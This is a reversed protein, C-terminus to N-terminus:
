CWKLDFRLWMAVQMNGRVKRFSEYLGGTALEHCPTENLAGTIICAQGEDAEVTTTVDASSSSSSSNAETAGSNGSDDRTLPTDNPNGNGSGSRDAPGLEESESAFARSDSSYFLRPVAAPLTSAAAPGAFSLAAARLFASSGALPRSVANLMITFCSNFLIFDKFFIKSAPEAKYVRRYGQQLM